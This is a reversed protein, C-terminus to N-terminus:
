FHYKGRSEVIVHREEPNATLEFFIHWDAPPIYGKGKEAWEFVCIASQNIYDRIGIYVLEEPDSLRYLDFHYVTQQPLYYPEVLTYTPSKVKGTHGFAHLMGRVLTTKGAGLTGTLYVVEGPSLKLVLEAGFAEMALTSNILYTAVNM